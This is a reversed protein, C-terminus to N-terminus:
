ECYKLNRNAIKVTSTNSPNKRYKQVPHNKYSACIRIGSFIESYTSSKSRISREVCIFGGRARPSYLLCCILKRGNICTKNLLVSTKDYEQLVICTSNVLHDIFYKYQFDNVLHRKVCVCILAPRRVSM